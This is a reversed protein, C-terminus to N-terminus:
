WPVTLFPSIYKLWRVPLFSRKLRMTFICASLRSSISAASAPSMTAIMPMSQACRRYRRRPASSSCARFCTRAGLRDDLHRDVRDRRSPMRDLERLARCRNRLSSGVNWTKVSSSVLSVTMAPM